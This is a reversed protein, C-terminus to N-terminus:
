SLVELQRARAIAVRLDTEIRAGENRYKQREFLDLKPNALINNEITRLRLSQEAVRLLENAIQALEARPNSIPKSLNKPM